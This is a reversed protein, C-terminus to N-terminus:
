KRMKVDYMIEEMKKLNRKAEDYKPRLKGVLDFKILESLIESIAKQYLSIRKFECLTAAVVAKRLIEGTLDCVGGLYQDPTLKIKSKFDVEGSTLFEYFMKAEVFEEAAECFFGEFSLKKHKEQLKELNLFLQEAGDLIERSKKMEDRHLAFIAQKSHRLIVRCIKQAEERLRDYSQYDSLLKQFLKKNFV